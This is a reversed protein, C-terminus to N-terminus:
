PRRKEHSEEPNVSTQLPPELAVAAPDTPHFEVRITKIDIAPVPLPLRLPPSGAVTVLLFADPQRQNLYALIKDRAEAATRYVGTAYGVGKLFELVDRQAPSLSGRESKLELYFGHYPGRPVPLCLDPIGAKVGMAKMQGATAKSRKGGNPIAYLYALEPYKKREYGLWTILACQEQFEEQRTTRHRPAAPRM